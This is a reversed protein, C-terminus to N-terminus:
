TIQTIFLMKLHFDGQMGLEEAKNFEDVKSM